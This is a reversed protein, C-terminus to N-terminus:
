EYEEDEKDNSDMLSSIVSSAVPRIVLPKRFLWLVGTLLGVFGIEILTVIWPVGIWMMLLNYILIIFLMLLALALLATFILLVVKGVLISVKEVITLEYYEAKLEIYNKITTIFDSASNERKKSM